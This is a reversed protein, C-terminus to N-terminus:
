RCDAVIRRKSFGLSRFFHSEGEVVVVATVVIFVVFRTMRWRSVSRRVGIWRRWQNGVDVVSVVTLRRRRRRRRVNVVLGIERRFRRNGVVSVGGSRRRRDHVVVRVMWVRGRNNVLVRMLGIRGEGVPWRHLDVGFCVRIEGEGDAVAFDNKDRGIGVIGSM